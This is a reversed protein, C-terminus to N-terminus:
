QWIAVFGGSKLASVSVIDQDNLTTTNVLFELGVKHGTADFMQARISSGSGDGGLGGTDVWSVVFGGDALAAISAANQDGQTTTNVLFEGGVKTGDAHYMQAKVSLGSADGGEGSADQWVVVFDGNGLVSVLPKNQDGITTTNVRFEAGAK